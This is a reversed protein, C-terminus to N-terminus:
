ILPSAYDCFQKNKLLKKIQTAPLPVQPIILNLLNFKIMHGRFFAFTTQHRKVFIKTPAFRVFIATETKAIALQAVFAIIKFQKLL